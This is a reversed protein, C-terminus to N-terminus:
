PGRAAERKPRQTAKRAHEGADDLLAPPHRGELAAAEDDLATHRGADAVRDRDVADAEGHRLVVVAPEPEVDHLLGDVPRFRETVLHVELRGQAGAVREAPVVDLAM